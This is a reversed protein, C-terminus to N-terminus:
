CDSHTSFTRYDILVYIASRATIKDVVKKKMETKRLCVIRPENSPVNRGAMDFRIMSKWFTEMVGALSHLSLAAQRRTLCHPDKVIIVAELNHFGAELAQAPQYSSLHGAPHLIMFRLQKEIPAVGDSHSSRVDASITPPPFLSLTTRWSYEL